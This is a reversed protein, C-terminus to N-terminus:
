SKRKARSQRTPQQRTVQQRGSDTAPPKPGGATPKSTTGGSAPRATGSVPKTDGSSPRQADSGESKPSGVPRSTGPKAGDTRYNSRGTDSYTSSEPTTATPTTGRQRVVRSAGGAPAKRGRGARKRALEEPDIGKARMRDAWDVYAPTNPAPNNHILIYQQGLTWLNSTLWYVLVGVPINLGMFLYMFPFIYLMTKQQQAMPGTLAEPPMNKRMLQLQTVFLTAVMGIVLIGAFIQTPGLSTMPLFTASLRAGFLTAQNLSTVLAPNDVFFSGLATGHSTYSLVNYLGILIPMQLVLPLCSATPSVGEEKFLKMTEQGLKERDHGYKEQLEKQKPGLMQMARSSRIQRVFLPILLSRIVITLSMISLVWTLGGDPDMFTSLLSHVGVLIGSIAWYLPQMIVDLFKLIGDWWNDLPMLLPLLFPIM